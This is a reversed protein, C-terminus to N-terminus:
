RPTLRGPQRGQESIQQASLANLLAQAAVNRASLAEQSTRGTIEITCTLEALGPPVAAQGQGVASINGM